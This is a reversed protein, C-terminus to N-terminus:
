LDMKQSTNININIMLIKNIIVCLYNYFCFLTTCKLSNYSLLYKNVNRNINTLLYCYDNTIPISGLLLSMKLKIQNRFLSNNKPSRKM